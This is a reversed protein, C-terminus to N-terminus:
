YLDTFLGRLRNYGGAQVVRMEGNDSRRIVLHNVGYMKVEKINEAKTYDLIANNNRPDIYIGNKNGLLTITM